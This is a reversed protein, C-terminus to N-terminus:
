PENAPTGSPNDLFSELLEAAEVADQERVLLQVIDVGPLMEAAQGGSVVCPIEQNELIGKALEADTNATPGTFARVRVMKPTSM